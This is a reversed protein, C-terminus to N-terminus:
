DVPLDVNREVWQVQGPLDCDHAVHERIHYCFHLRLLSRSHSQKDVHPLSSDLSLQLAIECLLQGDETLFRPKIMPTLHGPPRNLSDHVMTAVFQEIKQVVV